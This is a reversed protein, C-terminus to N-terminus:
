HVGKILICEEGEEREAGTEKLMWSEPIPVVFKDRGVAARPKAKPSAAFGQTQQALPGALGLRHHEVACPRSQHAPSASFGETWVSLQQPILCDSINGRTQACRPEATVQSSELVVSAKTLPYPHGLALSQSTFGRHTHRKQQKTTVAEHVFEGSKTVQPLWSIHVFSNMRCFSVM